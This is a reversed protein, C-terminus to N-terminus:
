VDNKRSLSGVVVSMWRTVGVRGVCLCFFRGWTVVVKGLGVRVMM